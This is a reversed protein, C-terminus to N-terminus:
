PTVIIQGTMHPHLACFYELTGPQSFVQSYSDDTDLAKSRFAGDKEAVVHPIDDENVWKVTTGATVTLTAPEFTFNAIKVTQEPAAIGSDCATFLTISLMGAAIRSLATHIM